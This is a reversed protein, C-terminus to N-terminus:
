ARIEQPVILKAIRKLYTHIRKLNELVTMEMRIIEIQELGVGALSASQLELAQNILHDVDAKMTLVAAAAREDGDKVARITTELATELKDGLEMVLHRMADSIQIDEDLIRYGVGVLDTEIVDGVSEFSDAAKMALAVQTSEHELLTQKRLDGLYRLIQSELVDVQDDMKHVQELQGRDRDLLGKRLSTLMLLVIEGMRAIELQVRELALAPTELLNDDLFKPRIIVKEEEIKDPVLREVLRALYGTLGLFIMTNAINFLTHANAIQRPVEAALRATGQLEPHTPSFAVV